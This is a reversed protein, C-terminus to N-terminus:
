GGLVFRGEPTLEHKAGLMLPWYDPGHSVPLKWAVPFGHKEALPVTIQRLAEREDYTPRLPETPPEPQEATPPVAFCTSREDTCDHFGGLILGAIGDLGGADDLQTLYADMKYYGEGVDEFFLFKGRLDDPTAAWPTGTLYNWTALNGGLVEAVIPQDPAHAFFELRADGFTRGAETPIGDRVLAFTADRQAAPMTVFSSSAPMNAHLTDWGWCRGAFRHLATVDSYGVLLKPPPPGDDATLEMLMMMLRTSGYGGRACWLVDITDDWALDWLADVRQDDTGAFIFDQATAQPHVTVEFGDERLVSVGMQLEVPGIPSAPTFIGIRNRPTQSM